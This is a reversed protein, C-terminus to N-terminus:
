WLPEDIRDFDNRWPPLYVWIVPNATSQLIRHWLCLMSTKYPALDITHCSANDIIKGKSDVYEGKLESKLEGKKDAFSRNVHSDVFTPLLVEGNASSQWDKRQTVSKYTSLMPAIFQIVARFSQFFRHKTLISFKMTRIWSKEPDIANLRSM